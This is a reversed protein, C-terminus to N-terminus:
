KRRREGHSEPLTDLDLLADRLADILWVAARPTLELRASEDPEGYHRALLVICEASAQRLAAVLICGGDVHVITEAGEHTVAEGTRKRPPCECTLAWCRYCPVPYKIGSM